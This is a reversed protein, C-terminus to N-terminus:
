NSHFEPGNDAHVLDMLGSLPWSYNSDLKALWLEKPLVAHALCLGVSNIGPPDLSLYFGAICRSYVDIALTLWPRGLAHREREDVVVVDLKTHDIQVVALPGDAGPFNGFVPRRKQALRRAKLRRRLTSIHPPKLGAQQCEAM